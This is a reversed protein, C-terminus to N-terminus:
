KENLNTSSVRLFIYYEKFQHYHPDRCLELQGCLKNSFHYIFEKSRGFLSFENEIDFFFDYAKYYYMMFRNQSDFIDDIYKPSSYAESFPIEEFLKIYLEEIITVDFDALRHMCVHWIRKIIFEKAIESKVEFVLQLLQNFNGHSELYIRARKRQDFVELKDSKSEAFLILDENIERPFEFSNMPFFSTFFHVGKWFFISNKLFVILSSTQHYLIYQPHFM